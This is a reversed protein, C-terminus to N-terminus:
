DYKLGIDTRFCASNFIIKGAAEQAKLAAEQMTPKLAAATAVRGGTTMYEGEENRYVEGPFIYVGDEPNGSDLGTVIEREVTHSPYSESCVCVAVCSKETVSLQVLPLKHEAMAEFLELLDNEIRPLQVETEPAGPRVNYELVLPDGNVNKVGIYLFGFYHMDEATLGRLTPRIIRREIKNLFESDVFTVPSEAGMGRTNEGFGGEHRRKYDRAPPLIIYDEGDVLLIISCEEGKAYEEIVVTESADGFKGDLMERLIDKAEAATTAFLVGLGGALGDAKLVYPPELSDIFGDGEDLTDTTVTMFRPTPIINRSMFEKAFEKSGELRACERDPAIVTCIDSLEDHIGATILREDGVLVIDIEKSTIIERLNRFDDHLSHLPDTRLNVAPIRFLEGLRQSRSIKAAFASERGGRGLLLINHKQKM